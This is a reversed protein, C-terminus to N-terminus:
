LLAGWQITCEKEQLVDSWGEPGAVELREREETM